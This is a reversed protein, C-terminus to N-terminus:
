FEPLRATEFWFRCLSQLIDRYQGPDPPKVIYCNAMNKYARIIDSQEGSVTLISVPITRLSSDSKLCELIKWGDLGPLFLDLIILSPRIFDKSNLKSLADEGNTVTYLRYSLGCDKLAEKVHAADTPNDEILLIIKEM